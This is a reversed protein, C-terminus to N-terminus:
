VTHSYRYTPNPRGPMISSLARITVSIGNKGSAGFASRVIKELKEPSMQARANLILNARAGMFTEDGRLVIGGNLQTLNAMCKKGDSEIVLKVHGVEANDQKFARALDELINRAYKGWENRGGVSELSVLANLWGMVAEGEAYTDYDVDVIHRGAKSSALVSALWDDIGDGSLASVEGVDSGPFTEVLLGVILRLDSASLTDIKNLLIIDSEQMQKRMIYRASAHMLSNKRDLAELVRDPDALVTFPTLDIEPYKDKLPQMITASLDTCSGVPEAIIVDAKQEILSNVANIIGEFNCCFCSGTVEKVVAGTHLLFATDVLDPSQDNTIMGVAKDQETLRRAINWLLTTKGSGLFGGVIIMKTKM